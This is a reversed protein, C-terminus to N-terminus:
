PLGISYDIIGCIFHNTQMGNFEALGYSESSLLRIGPIPFPIVNNPFRIHFTCISDVHFAGDRFYTEKVIGIIFIKVRFSPGLNEDSSINRTSEASVTSPVLCTSLIIFVFLSGMIMKIKHM